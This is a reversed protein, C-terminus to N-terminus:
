INLYHFAQITTLPALMLLMCQYIIILMVVPLTSAPHTLFGASEVLSPWSRSPYQKSPQSIGCDHAGMAACPCAGIVGIFFTSLPSPISFSVVGLFAECVHKEEARQLSM